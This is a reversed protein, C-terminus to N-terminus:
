SSSHLYPRCDVKNYLTCNSACFRKWEHIFICFGRMGNHCFQPQKNARFTCRHYLNYELYHHPKPGRFHIIIPDTASTTSSFDQPNKNWALNLAREKLDHKYFANYAGQDVPGYGYFHFGNVGARYIYELFSQYSTKMSSINMIIVGANYPYPKGGEPAMIISAPSQSFLESPLIPKRFLVDMDTFLLVPYQQLVQQVPVDIRQFTGVLGEQSEYLHSFRLVSPKWSFTLVQWISSLISAPKQSAQFAEWLSSSWAPQHPILNVGHAIFWTAISSSMNGAFLCHPLVRGASIASSVCAQALYDLHPSFSNYTFAWPLADCDTFKPDHQIAYTWKVQRRREMIAFCTDENIHAFLKGAIAFKKDMMRQSMPGARIYTVNIDRLTTFGAKSAIIDLRSCVDNIVQAAFTDMKGEADLYLLCDSTEAVVRQRQKISVNIYDSWFSPSHWIDKDQMYESTDLCRRLGPKISCARAEPISVKLGHVCAFVTFLSLAYILYHTGSM